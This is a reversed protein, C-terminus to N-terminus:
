AGARGPNINSVILNPALPLYFFSIGARCLRLATSFKVSTLVSLTETRVSSDGTSAGAAPPQPHSAAIPGQLSTPGSSHACSLSFSERRGGAGPFQGVGTDACMHKQLGTLDLSYFCSKNFFFTRFYYSIKFIPTNVDCM